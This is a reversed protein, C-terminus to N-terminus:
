SDAQVFVARGVREAKIQISHLGKRDQQLSGPPETTCGTMECRRREWAAALQAEVTQLDAPDVYEGANHAAYLQQQRETLAWVQDFYPQNSM